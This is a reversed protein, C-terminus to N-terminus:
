ICLSEGLTFQYKGNKIKGDLRRNITERDKLLPFLGTKLAKYGRVNNDICYIVAKDIQRNKADTYNRGMAAEAKSKSRVTQLKQIRLIYFNHIISLLFFHM